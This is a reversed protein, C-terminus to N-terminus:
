SERKQKQGKEANEFDYILQAKQINDFGIELPKEFEENDLTIGENTVQSLLGQFRKQGEIADETKVKVNEGQFRVFDKPRTLPRDLGPSTVELDYAGDIPDEVDMLSSIHRSAKVCDDITLATEDLRDLMVELKMRVKGSLTVRVLDYGMHNLPEEIIKAILDAKPDFM